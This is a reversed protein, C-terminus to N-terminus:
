RRVPPAAQRKLVTAERSQQQERQMRELRSLVLQVLQEMQAPSLPMEGDLATVETTFRGIDLPV